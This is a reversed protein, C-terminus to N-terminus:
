SVKRDDTSCSSACPPCDVAGTRKPTLDTVRGRADITIACCDSTIKVFDKRARQVRSKAATLSIGLEDAISQMTRGEMDAWQLLRSTEHPLANLLPQMCTLVAAREDDSSGLPEENDLADAAAILSRAQNRYHDAISNRAIRFLWGTTSAIEAGPARSVARELIRQVLDDADAGNRIRASVFAHLRDYFAGWDPEPSTM